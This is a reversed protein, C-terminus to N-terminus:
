EKAYYYYSSIKHLYVGEVVQKLYGWSIVRCFFITHTHVYM